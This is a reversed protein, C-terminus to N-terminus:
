GFLPNKFMKSEWQFKKWSSFYNVWFNLLEFISRNVNRGIFSKLLLAILLDRWVIHYSQSLFWITMCSILLMKFKSYIWASMAKMIRHAAPFMLSPSLIGNWSQLDNKVLVKLILCSYQPLVCYNYRWCYWYIIDEQVSCKMYTQFLDLHEPVSLLPSQKLHLIFNSQM